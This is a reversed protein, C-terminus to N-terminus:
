LSRFISLPRLFVVVQVRRCRVFLRAWSREGREAGPTM